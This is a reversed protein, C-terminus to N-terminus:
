LTGWHTLGKVKNKLECQTPQKFTITFGKGFKRKIKFEKNGCKKKCNNCQSKMVYKWTMEKQKKHWEYFIVYSGVPLKDLQKDAEKVSMFKKVNPEDVANWWAIDTSHVPVVNYLKERSSFIKVKELKKIQRPNKNKSPM